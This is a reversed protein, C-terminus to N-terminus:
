NTKNKEKWDKRDNQFALELQEKSKEISWDKYEEWNTFLHQFQKPIVKEVSSQEKNEKM